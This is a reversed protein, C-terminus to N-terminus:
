FSLSLRESSVSQDGYNYLMIYFVQLDLPEQIEVFEAQPGTNYKWYLNEAGPKAPIWQELTCDYQSPAMTWTREFDGITPPCGRGILLHVTHPQNSYGTNGVQIGTNCTTVEAVLSFYRTEWPGFHYYELHGSEIPLAEVEICGGDPKDAAGDGDDQGPEENVVGGDDGWGDNGDETGGDGDGDPQEGPCTGRSGDPHECESGPPLCAPDTCCLPHLYPPFVQSVPKCVSDTDCIQSSLCDCSTECYAGPEVCRGLGDCSKGQPCVGCSSGCVPDPGCERDGCQQECNKCIGNECGNPCDVITEEPNGCSDFWWVDDQHCGTATHTECACLGDQCVMGGTCEGCIGGCGDDGCEKGVCDQTCGGDKCLHTSSDCYWGEGHKEVCESNSACKEEVEGAGCQMLSLGATALGLLVIMRTLTKKM